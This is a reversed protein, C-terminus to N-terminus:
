VVNLRPRAKPQVTRLLLDRFASASALSARKRAGHDATLLAEREDSSSQSTPRSPVAQTLVQAHASAGKEGAHRRDPLTIADTAGYSLISAEVKGESPASDTANDQLPETQISASSRQGKQHLQMLFHRHREFVSTLNALTDIMTDVSGEFGDMHMPLIEPATNVVLQLVTHVRESTRRVHVHVHPTAADADPLPTSTLTVLVYPKRPWPECNSLLQVRNCSQGWRRSQPPSTTPLVPTPTARRFCPRQLRM